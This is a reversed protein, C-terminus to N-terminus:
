YGASARSALLSGVLADVHALYRSTVSSTSELDAHRLLELHGIGQTQGVLPGPITNQQM